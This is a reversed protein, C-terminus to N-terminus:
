GCASGLINVTILTTFMTVKLNNAFVKSLEGLPLLFWIRGIVFGNYKLHELELHLLTSCHALYNPQLVEWIKEMSEYLENEKLWAPATECAFAISICGIQCFRVLDELESTKCTEWSDGLSWSMWPDWFTETWLKRSVSVSGSVCELIFLM